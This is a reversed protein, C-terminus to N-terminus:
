KTVVGAAQQAIPWMEWVQYREVSEERSFLGATTADSTGISRHILRDTDRHLHCNGALAQQLPDVFLQQAELASGPDAAVHEVYGFRGGPVLVRSVERLVAEPDIVSCLVKTMVVADFSRDKFPLKEADGRVWSIDVGFEKAHKRIDIQDGPGPLNGDLGVLRTGSPYYELNPAGAIGIELVRLGSQPVARGITDRVRGWYEPSNEAAIVKYFVFAYGAGFFLNIAQLRSIPTGDAGGDALTVRPAAIAGPVDAESGGGPEAAEGGYKSGERDPAAVL